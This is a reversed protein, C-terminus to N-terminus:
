SKYEIQGKIKKKGKKNIDSIWSLAPEPGHNRGVRSQDEINLEHVQGVFGSALFQLSM